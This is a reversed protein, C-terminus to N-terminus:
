KFPRYLVNVIETTHKGKWHPCDECSALPYCIETHFNSFLDDTPILCRNNDSRTKTAYSLWNATSTILEIPKSM